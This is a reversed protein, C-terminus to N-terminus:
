GGHMKKGRLHLHTDGDHMKKGRLHTDGDHMQTPSVTAMQVKTGSVTLGNGDHM